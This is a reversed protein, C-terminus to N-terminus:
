AFRHASGYKHKPDALSKVPQNSTGDWPVVRPSAFNTGVSKLDYSYCLDHHGPRNLMHQIDEAVLNSVNPLQHQTAALHVLPFNQL